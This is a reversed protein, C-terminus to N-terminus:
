TWVRGIVLIMRVHLKKRERSFVVDSEGGVFGRKVGLGGLGEFGEARGDVDACDVEARQAACGGV